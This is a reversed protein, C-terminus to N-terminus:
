PRELHAQSDVHDAEGQKTNEANRARMAAVRCRGSCYIAHSRRGTLPGTLFIDGCHGCTGLKVGQMAAMAVEMKMFFYLERCQLLMRLAGGEGGLGFKPILSPYDDANIALLADVQSGCAHTLDDRFRQQVDLIIKRGHFHELTEEVSIQAMLGKRQPELVPGFRTFFNVRDADERANVFQVVVPDELNEIYRRFDGTPAFM